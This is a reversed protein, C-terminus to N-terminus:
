RRSTGEYAGEWPHRTYIHDFFDGSPVADGFREVIVGQAATFVIAQESREGSTVTLEEMDYAGGPYGEYQMLRKLGELTVSYLDGVIEGEGPSVIPVGLAHMVYGDLRWAGLEGMLRAGPDFHHMELGFVQSRPETRLTGYAFLNVRIM